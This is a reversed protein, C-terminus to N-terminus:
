PKLFYKVLPSNNQRPLKESEINFGKEHRLVRIYESLRWTKYPHPFYMLVEAQTISGNKQLYHLVRM